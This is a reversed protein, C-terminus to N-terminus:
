LSIYKRVKPGIYESINVPLKRWVREVLARLNSIDGTSELILQGTNNYKQWNLLEPSAGWQSKFKFTGEGVTSRGFDFEECGRDNVYKLLTWYLLMNPALRNFDANTSAWPICAKRGNFLVIGAGVVQNESYVTAIIADEGYSTAIEEFWKKSHVPSGLDRMNRTFVQYFESVFQSSNGTNAILGNKESKRIQSRLKSKFGSFLADSDEPLDMLMRVKTTASNEVDFLTESKISSRNDFALINKVKCFQLAQNLLADSVEENNALIGGVDCFPLACLSGKSFPPAILVAPLVGVVTGDSQKAIWYFCQHKYANSIAKMWAIRHYPSASPHQKVYADWASFDDSQILNIQTM